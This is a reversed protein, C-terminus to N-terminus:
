EGSPLGEALRVGGLRRDLDGRRVNRRADAFRLRLLDGRAAAAAVAMVGGAVVLPAVGRVGAEVHCLDDGTAPGEPSGSGCVLSLEDELALERDRQAGSRNPVGSSDSM